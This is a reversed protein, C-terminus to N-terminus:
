GLEFTYNTLLLAAFARSPLRFAESMIDRAGQLLPTNSHVIKWIISDTCKVYKNMDDITDSLRGEFGFIAELIPNNPNAAQVRDVEILAETVMVEIINAVKHQFILIANKSCFINKWTQGLLRTIVQYAQRHLWNRTHYMNYLNGVEKESYCLTQRGWPDRM